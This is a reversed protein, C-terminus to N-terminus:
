GALVRRGSVKTLRIAVHQYRNGEAWPEPRQDTPEDPRGVFSASGRVLVSWGCQNSADVDDVEFAVTRGQLHRAMSGDRTTRFRVSGPTLVYNVPVAVPGSEDNYVVRGVDKAALLEKCEGEDLEVLRDHSWLDNMVGM